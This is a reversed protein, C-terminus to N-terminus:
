KRKKIVERAANAIQTNDLKSGRISYVNGSTLNNGRAKPSVYKQAINDYYGYDSVSRSRGNRSEYVKFYTRSKGYNEWESTSLRYESADQNANSAEVMIDLKDIFDQKGTPEGIRSIMSNVQKENGSTKSGTASRNKTTYTKSGKSHCGMINEGENKNNVIKKNNVDNHM